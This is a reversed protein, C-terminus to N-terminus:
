KRDNNVVNKRFVISEFLPCWKYKYKALNWHIKAWICLTPLRKYISQLHKQMRKKSKESRKKEKQYDFWLKRLHHVTLWKTKTIWIIFSWISSTGKRARIQQLPLRKNALVIITFSSNRNEHLNSINNVNIKTIWQTLNLNKMIRWKRVSILQFECRLAYKPLLLYVLRENLKIPIWCCHRPFADCNTLLKDFIPFFM